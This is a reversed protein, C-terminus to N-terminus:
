IIQTNRPISRKSFRTKANRIEVEIKSNAGAYVNAKLWVIEENLAIPGQVTHFWVKGEPDWRYNQAKLLDKTRFPSYLAYVTHTTESLRDLIPKLGPKGSVPLPQALIELLAECDDQARHANYFFGMQYAIYDLKRSGLKEANWDIDTLSCGWPLDAFVPFRNELFPRDFAANHAIIISTESLLAEVREDDIRQGKLMADTIGTIETTEAKLIHGPDELGGYADTIRIPQGTVPDYEFVVLGIEIIKDSNSDLGTTETDVVIGKSLTGEPLPAYDKGTKLRRLVRYNPDASLINALKELDM